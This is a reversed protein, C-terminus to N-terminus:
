LNLLRAILAMRLAVGNTVQDFYKSRVDQDVEIHIEDVRPLPHMLIMDQRAKVMVGPDIVYVGKYKLYESQSEFREQQIRTHALVDCAGIAEDLNETEMVEFGKERLMAVIEEPMRLAEPSVFLFKVGKFHSLYHCQSHPVRGYKLDGVMAITFNDLSGREEYMTFLDLLGQTPHDNPGDGGNIVPVMSGKAFEAVSGAEPHRMAVIDAFRCAMQATDHLTEGKKVSSTSMMEANSIVMGGLRLMAVEFSFRTRTSPEFFLTALIKGEAETLKRREKVVPLYREAREFLSLIEDRNLDKSSLLHQM